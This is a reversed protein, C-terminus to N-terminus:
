TQIIFVSYYLALNSFAHRFTPMQNVNVLLRHSHALNQNLSKEKFDKAGFSNNVKLSYILGTKIGEPIKVESKSSTKNIYQQLM